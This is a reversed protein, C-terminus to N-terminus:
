DGVSKPHPPVKSLVTQDLKLRRIRMLPDQKTKKFITFMLGSSGWSTAEVKLCMKLVGKRRGKTIKTSSREKEWKYEHVWRSKEERSSVTM